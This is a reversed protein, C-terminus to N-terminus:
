TIAYASLHQPSQPGGCNGTNPTPGGSLWERLGDFLSVLRSGDRFIQRCSGDLPLEVEVHRLGCLRVDLMLYFVIQGAVPAKPLAGGGRRRIHQFREGAVTMLQGIEEFTPISLAEDMQKIWTEVDSRRVQKM